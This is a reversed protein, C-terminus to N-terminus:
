QATGSRSALWSPLSAISPLIADAFPRLEDAIAPGTLVGLGTMGAARAAALDHFSDGIMACENPRLNLTNAVTLLPDPSPKAGLGSDFGVIMDFLDLCGCADLQARAASESDNTIVAVLLGRLRLDSLFPMLEVVPVPIAQGALTSLETEITAADRGDLHPALKEAVELNTGAIAISGPLFTQRAVDYDIAKALCNLLDDDGKSLQKLVGGAWADWTDSFGFLTGDKDFLIAKIMPEKGIKQATM